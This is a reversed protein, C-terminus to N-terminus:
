TIKFASEYAETESQRSTSRSSGGRSGGDRTIGAGHAGISMSTHCGHVGAAVRGGAAHGIGMPMMGTARAETEPPTRSLDVHLLNYVDDNMSLMESEGAGDLEDDDGVARPPAARRPPESALAACARLIPAQLLTLLLTLMRFCQLLTHSSHHREADLDRMADSYAKLLYIASVIITASLLLSLRLVLRHGQQSAWFALIASVACLAGFQKGAALPSAVAYWACMILQVSCCLKLRCGIKDREYLRLQRELAAAVEDADLDAGGSPGGRM